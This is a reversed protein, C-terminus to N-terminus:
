DVVLENIVWPEDGGDATHRIIVYRGRTEVPLDIITKGSKGAGTVRSAGPQALDDTVFVAYAVPSGSIEANNDLVIQRFPRTLKFDIEVWQDARAPVSWSSWRRGDMMNSIQRENGSARLTPKGALNSRIAMTADGAVSSLAPNTQLKQALALAENSSTRALLYILRDLIAADHSLPVVRDITAVLTSAPLERTRELSRLIAQVATARAADLSAKEAVQM